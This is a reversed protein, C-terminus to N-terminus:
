RGPAQAVHDDRAQVIWMDFSQQSRAVTSGNDLAPMWHTAALQEYLFNLV